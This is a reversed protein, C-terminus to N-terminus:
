ADGAEETDDAADPDASVDHAAQFDDVAGAALDHGAVQRAADRHLAAAVFEVVEGAVEVLHEFLNLTEHHTHALDGVVDGVVQARRQVAQAVLEFARQHTVRRAVFLHQREFAGDGFGVAQDRGEVRQQQDGFGFGAGMAVREFEHIQALDDVVDGIEVFRGGLVAAHRQAEDGRRADGYAAIAAKEGAGGRVQDLVRQFVRRL